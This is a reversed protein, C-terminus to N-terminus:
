KKEDEWSEVHPMEEPSANEYLANEMLHVMEWISRFNLNIIFEHIEVMKGLYIIDVKGRYKM